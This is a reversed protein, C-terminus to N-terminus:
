GPSSLRKEFVLYEEDVGCPQHERYRRSEVYGRAGYYAIARPNWESCTLWARAYGADRMRRESNELLLSGIGRRQWSPHVWLGNVEDRRPQVLGLLSSSAEAVWVEQFYAPYWESERDTRLWDVILAFPARETFASLWARRALDVLQDVDSALARRLTVAGLGAIQWTM